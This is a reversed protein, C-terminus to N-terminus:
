LRLEKYVSKTGWLYDVIKVLKDLLGKRKLNSEEERLLVSQGNAM